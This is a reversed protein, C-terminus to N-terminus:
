IPLLVIIWVNLSQYYTLVIKKTSKTKDKMFFTIFIKLSTM